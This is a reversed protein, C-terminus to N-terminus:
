GGQRIREHEGYDLHHCIELLWTHLIRRSASVRALTARRMWISDRARNVGGEAACDGQFAQREGRPRQSPGEARVAFAMGSLGDRYDSYQLM